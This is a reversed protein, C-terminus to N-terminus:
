QDMFKKLSRKLFPDSPGELKMLKGKWIINTERTPAMQASIPWNAVQEGTDVESQKVSTEFQFSANKPPSVKILDESLVRGLSSFCEIQLM